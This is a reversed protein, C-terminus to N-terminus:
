ANRQGAQTAGIGARGVPGHFRAPAATATYSLWRSSTTRRAPRHATTLVVSALVSAELLGTTAACLGADVEGPATCRFSARMGARFAARQAM